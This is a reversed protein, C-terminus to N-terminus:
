AKQGREAEDQLLRPLHKLTSQGVSVMTEYGSLASVALGLGAPLLRSTRTFPLLRRLLTRVGKSLGTNVYKGPLTKTVYERSIDRHDDALGANEIGFAEGVVKMTFKEMSALDDVQAGHLACLSIVLTVAQDLVFFNEVGLLWFSLLTGPGPVVSPSNILASKVAQSRAMEEILGQCAISRGSLAAESLAQGALSLSRKKNGRILNSVLLLFQDGLADLVQNGKSRGTDM